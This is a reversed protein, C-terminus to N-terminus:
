AFAMSNPGPAGCLARMASDIASRVRRRKGNSMIYLSDTSASAQAPGPAVSVTAILACAAVGGLRKLVRSLATKAEDTKSREIAQDLLIIEPQEGLADAVKLAITEDLLTGHTRYQSITNPSFGLQKAVRYDSTWGQAVKVRDIWEAAKM